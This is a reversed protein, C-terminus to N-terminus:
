FESRSWDLWKQFILLHMNFPKLFIILKFFMQTTTSHVSADYGGANMNMFM